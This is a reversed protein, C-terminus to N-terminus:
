QYNNAITNFNNKPSTQPNYYLNSRNFLYIATIDTDNIKEKVSQQPLFNHPQNSLHITIKSEIDSKVKTKKFSEMTSIM